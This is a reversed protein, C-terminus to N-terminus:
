GLAFGVSKFHIKGLESGCSQVVASPLHAQKNIAKSLYSKPILSTLFNQILYSILSRYTGFWHSVIGIVHM